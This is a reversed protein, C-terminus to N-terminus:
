PTNKTWRFDCHSAGQMLTQSRRFTWDPRMRREVEFDVSCTLLAGIEPEGISRFYEAFACRQMDIGYESDSERAIISEVPFDFDGATSPHSRSVGKPKSGVYDAWSEAIADGVIEHAREKGLEAELAKVIPIVARAQIKVAQLHSVDSM